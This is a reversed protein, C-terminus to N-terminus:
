HQKESPLQKSQTETDCKLSTRSIESIKLYNYRNHHDTIESPVITITKCYWLSCRYLFKVQLAIHTRVAGSVPQEGMERGKRPRRIRQSVATSHTHTNKKLM